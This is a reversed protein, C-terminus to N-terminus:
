LNERESTNRILNWIEKVEEETAEQIANIPENLYIKALQNEITKNVLQVVYTVYFTAYSLNCKIRLKTAACLNCKKWNLSWFFSNF